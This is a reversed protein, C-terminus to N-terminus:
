PALSSEIVPLLLPELKMILAQDKCVSMIIKGLTIIYALPSRNSDSDEEKNISKQYYEVM